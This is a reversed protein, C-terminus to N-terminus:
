MVTARTPFSTARLMRFSLAVPATVLTSSQLTPARYQSNGVFVFHEDDDFLGWVAWRCSLADSSLTLTYMIDDSCARLASETLM